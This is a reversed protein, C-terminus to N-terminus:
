EPGEGGGVWVWWHMAWSVRQRGHAFFFHGGEEAYEGRYGMVGTDQERGPAWSWEVGSGHACPCVVFNGPVEVMGVGTAEAAQQKVSGEVEALVVNGTHCSTDIVALGNAKLTWGYSARAPREIRCRKTAASAASPAILVATVAAIAIAKANM